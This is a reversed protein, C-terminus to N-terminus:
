TVVVVDVPQTYGSPFTLTAATGTPEASLTYGELGDYGYGNDTMTVASIATSTFTLDATATTIVLTPVALVENQTSYGTGAANIVVSTIIGDAGAVIDVTADANGGPIAITGTEYGYGANVLTVSDIVGGTEEVDVTATILANNPADFTITETGAYGTGGSNITTTDITDDEFVPTLSAIAFDNALITGSNLGLTTVVTDIDGAATVTFEFVSRVLTSSAAVYDATQGVGNENFSIQPTGTVTVPETWNIVFTIVDGAAVSYDGASPNTVLLLNPANPPVEAIGKMGHLLEIQGNPHTVYWGGAGAFVNDAMKGNGNKVMWDNPQSRSTGM